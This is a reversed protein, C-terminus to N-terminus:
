PQLGPIAGRAIQPAAAPQRQDDDTAPGTGRMVMDFADRRKGAVPARHDMAVLDAAAARGPQRVAPRIEPRRRQDDLLKFLQDGM